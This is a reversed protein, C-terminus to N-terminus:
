PVTSDTIPLFGMRKPVVKGLSETWKSGMATLALIEVVQNITLTANYTGKDSRKMFERIPLRYSVVSISDAREHSLPGAGAEDVLGGVVYVCGASINILPELDANPCLYIVQKGRFEETLTENSIKWGFSDFGNLCSRGLIFFEESPSLLTVNLGEYRKQLGWVRGMQRILKKTEKYTMARSYNLDICVELSFELNRKVVMMNRERRRRHEEVRRWKRSAVIRQYRRLKKDKKHRLRIKESCEGVLEMFGDDKPLFDFFSSLDFIEGGSCM